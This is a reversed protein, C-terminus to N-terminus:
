IAKGPKSFLNSSCSTPITSSQAILTENSADNFTTQSNVSNSSSENPTTIPNHNSNKRESIPSFDSSPHSVQKHHKNNEAPIDIDIVEISKRVHANNEDWNFQFNWILYLEM